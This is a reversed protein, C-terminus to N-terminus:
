VLVFIMIVQHRRLSVVSWCVPRVIMSLANRRYEASGGSQCLSTSATNWTKSYIRTTRRMIMCNNSWNKVSGIRCTAPSLCPRYIDAQVEYDFRSVKEPAYFHFCSLAREAGNQCYLNESQNKLKNLSYNLLNSFVTQILNVCDVFCLSSFNVFYMFLITLLSRLSSNIKIKM